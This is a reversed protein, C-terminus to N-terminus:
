LIEASTKGIFGLIGNNFRAYTHIQYTGTHGKHNKKDIHIVYRGDETKEATYWVIDSQDAKCWTPVTISEYTWGGYTIDLYVDAKGDGQQEDSVTLEAKTLNDMSFSTKGLFIPKGNSLFGYVHVQYQGLTKHKRIDITTQMEATTGTPVSTKGGSTLNYWVIDDQGGKESWVAAQVKAFALPTKLNTLMVPYSIGDESELVTIGEQSVSATFGTNGLYVLNSGIRAYVHCKYTGLGLHNKIEGTITWVGASKKSAEYWKIDEQKAGSWTPVVISSITGKDSRPHAISVTFKGTNEDYDCSIQNYEYEPHDVTYETKGLYVLKGNMDTAYVHSIFTGFHKYDEADINVTATGTAADYSANEWRLDDQGAEATWTPVQIKKVGGPVGINSVSVKIATGNVENEVVAQPKEFTVNTAGCFTQLGYKNTGYVHIKYTGYNNKHKTISMDVTWTTGDVKKAEYWVLDAQKPDSWTPVTIKKVSDPCSVGSLVIKCTGNLANVNEVSINEVTVPQTEAVNVDPLVFFTDTKICFNENFQTNKKYLHIIYDGKHKFDAVKLNAAYSGDNQRNLTIWKLDDQGGEASWVAAIYSTFRYTQAGTLKISFVTNNGSSDTVTLKSLDEKNYNVVVHKAQDNSYGSYNNPAPVSDRGVYRKLTYASNILAQVRAPTYIISRAKPPTQETVEVGVLKGNEYIMDTILEIHAGAANFCDGIEANYISNGPVNVFMSSSAFGWTTIRSIGYCYSAMASCDNAYYTSDMSGNRGRATYLPSGADRVANLFSDFSASQPVWVGSSVQQGYPIGNITKGAYYVTVPDEPDSFGNVNRVPSWRIDVNQRARAVINRVGASSATAMLPGNLIVEVFPMYDECGYGDVLPFMTTDWEPYFIYFFEDTTDFDNESVWTVPIEVAESSNDLFVYISEPMKEELEEFSCKTVLDITMEESSLMQFGTITGPPPLVIDKKKKDKTESDTEKEEEATEADESAEETSDDAEETVEEDSTIESETVDETEEMDPIEESPASPIEEEAPAEAAATNTDPEALVTAPLMGVTLALSLFGALFRKKM